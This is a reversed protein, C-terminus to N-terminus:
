SIKIIIVQLLDYSEYLGVKDFTFVRDVQKNALTQM